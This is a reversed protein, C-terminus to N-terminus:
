LTANIQLPNIVRVLSTIDVHIHHLHAFSEAFLFYFEVVPAKSVFSWHFNKFSHKNSMKFSLM